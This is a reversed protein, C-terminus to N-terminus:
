VTINVGTQSIHETAYIAMQANLLTDGGALTQSFGYRNDRANGDDGYGTASGDQQPNDQRLDFSLANEEVELGADQLIRGLHQSDRQLMALTEPRDATLHAKVNGAKDFSMEIDLRGLDAPELQMNFTTVKANANQQIQLAIMQLTPGSISRGSSSVFNSFNISNPTDGAKLGIMSQLDTTNGATNNLSIDGQGAQAIENVMSVPTATRAPKTATTEATTPIPAEAGAKVDASVPPVNKGDAKKDVALPTVDIKVPASPKSADSLIEQAQPSMLSTTEADPSINLATLYRQISKADMGAADLEAIINDTFAAMQEPSPNDGQSLMFDELMKQLRQLTETDLEAADAGIDNLLLSLKASLDGTLGKGEEDEITSSVEQTDVKGDRIAEAIKRAAAPDAPNINLREAIKEVAKKLQPRETKEINRDVKNEVSFKKESVDKVPTNLLTSIFSELQGIDAKKAGTNLVSGLNLAKSASGGTTNQQINNNVTM